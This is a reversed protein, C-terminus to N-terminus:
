LGKQQRFPMSLKAVSIAVSSLYWYFANGLLWPDLQELWNGM